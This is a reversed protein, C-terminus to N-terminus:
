VFDSFYNLSDQYKDTEIQMLIPYNILVFIEKVKFLHLYKDIM